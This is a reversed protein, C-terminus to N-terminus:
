SVGGGGGGGEVRCWSLRVFDSLLWSLLKITRSFNQLISSIM